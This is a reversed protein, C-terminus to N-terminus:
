RLWGPPVSARRAEEQLDAIAKKDDQIAKTLRNLEAISKQRDREITARQAPDDRASFDTTLANIKSQLADAFTSDRDLQQQLTKMRGSWYAQDKPQEKDKDKDAAAKEATASAPKAPTSNAAPAPAPPSAGLDKNTYVKAPEAVKKRREEEKKAIEGLSQAYASGATAGLLLSAVILRASM